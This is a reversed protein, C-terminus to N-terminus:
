LQERTAFKEDVNEHVVYMTVARTCTHSGIFTRRYYEDTTSVAACLTFYSRDYREYPLSTKCVIVIQIPAYNEEPVFSLDARRSEGEREEEKRSFARESERERMREKKRREERGSRARDKVNGWVRRGDKGM